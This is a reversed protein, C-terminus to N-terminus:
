FWKKKKFYALFGGAIAAMLALIAPYGWRTELEPMYKFNMGYIGVIFTLPLFITGIVTLVKMIENMRNNVNALYINLMTAVLEKLSDISRTVNLTHDYLNRIYPVTEDRIIENEEIELGHLLEPLQWISKLLQFIVKRVKQMKHYIHKHAKHALEDDLIDIEESLKEITLYYGDVISDVLAFALYDAGSYKIKGHSYQIRKVLGDISESREPEFSLVFNLGIIINIQSSKVNINEDFDVTKVKVFAIEEFINIIPHKFSDGIDEFIEENISFKERLDDMQDTNSFGIARAWLFEDSRMPVDLEDLNGVQKETTAGNSFYTADIYYDERQLKSIFYYGGNHNKMGDQETM